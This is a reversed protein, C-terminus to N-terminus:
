NAPAFESVIVAGGLYKSVQRLELRQFAWIWVVPLRQPLLAPKGYRMIEANSVSDDVRASSLFARLDTHAREFVIVLRELSASIAGVVNPHSGIRSIGFALVYKM